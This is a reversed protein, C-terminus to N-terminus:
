HAGHGAHDGDKGEMEACCDKGDGKAMDKCCACGKKAPEGGAQHQAHASHDMAPEAPAPAQAPAAAALAAATLIIIM